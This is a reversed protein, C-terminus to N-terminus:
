IIAPKVASRQGQTANETENRLMCSTQANPADNKTPWHNKTTNRPM